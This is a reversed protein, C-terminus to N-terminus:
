KLAAEKPSLGAAVLVQSLWRENERFFSRVEVIMEVPINDAEAAIIGCLCMRGQAIENRFLRVYRRLQMAPAFKDADALASM